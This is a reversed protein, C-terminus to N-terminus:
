LRLASLAIPRRQLRQGGLSQISFAIWVQHAPVPVDVTRAGARHAWAALSAILSAFDIGPALAPDIVSVCDHEKVFRFGAVIEAGGRTLLGYGARRGRPSTLDHAPAGTPSRLAGPLARLAPGDALTARRARLGGAGGPRAPVRYRFFRHAGSRLGFERELMEQEGGEEWSWALVRDKRASMAELIAGAILRRGLGNGRHDPRVYVTRLFAAREWLVLRQAGALAGEDTFGGIWRFTAPHALELEAYRDADGTFEASLAALAATDRRSLPRVTVKAAAGTRDRTRSAGAKAEGPGREVLATLRRRYVSAWKM